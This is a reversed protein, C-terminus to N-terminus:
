NSTGFLPPAAKWTSWPQSLVLIQTILIIINFYDMQNQFTMKEEMIFFPQRSTKSMM